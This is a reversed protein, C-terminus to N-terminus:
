KNYFSCGSASQICNSITAMNQQQENMVSGKARTKICLSWSNNSQHSMTLAAMTASVCSCALTKNHVCVKNDYMASTCYNGEKM